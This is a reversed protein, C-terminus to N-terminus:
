RILDFNSHINRGVRRTRDNLNEQVLRIKCDHRESSPCTYEPVNICFLGLLYAVIYIDSIQVVNIVAAKVNIVSM